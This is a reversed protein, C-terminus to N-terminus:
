ARRAAWAVCGWFYDGAVGDAILHVQQGALFRLRQSRPTFWHKLSTVARATDAGGTKAV